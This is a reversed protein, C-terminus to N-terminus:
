SPENGPSGFVIEDWSPVSRRTKRSRPRGDEDAAEDDGQQTADTGFRDDESTESGPLAQGPVPPTRWDQLAVITADTDSDAIEAANGFTEAADEVVEDFGDDGDFDLEFDALPQRVGRSATLSDLIAGTSPELPDVASLRRIRPPDVEIETLQKAADDLAHISRTQLDVEWSARVHHGDLQYNLLVTWPGSAGRTADWELEATKVRLTALRDIALDGLSPSDPHRGVPLRQAQEAVWAREAAVPGEFREIHEVDLGSEAAVEDITAGARLLAQIERPPMTASESDPTRVTRRLASRLEETIALTHEDGSDDSLILQNGDAVRVLRLESM